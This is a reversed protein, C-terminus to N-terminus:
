ALSFSFSTNAISVMELKLKFPHLFTILIEPMLSILFKLIRRGYECHGEFVFDQRNGFDWFAEFDIYLLAFGFKKKDHKQPLKIGKKVKLIKSRHLITEQCYVEGKSTPTSSALIYLRFLALQTTEINCQKTFSFSPSSLLIYFAMLVLTVIFWLFFLDLLSYM